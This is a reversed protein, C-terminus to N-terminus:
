ATWETVPQSRQVPKQPVQPDRLLLYCCIGTVMLLWLLGVSVLFRQVNM